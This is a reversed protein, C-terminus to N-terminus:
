VLSLLLCKRYRCFGCNKARVQGVANGLLAPNECVIRAINANEVPGNAQCLGNEEIFVTNPSPNTNGIDNTVCYGGTSGRGSRDPESVSEVNMRANVKEGNVLYSTCRIEVGIKTTPDYIHWLYDNNDNPAFMDETRQFNSDIPAGTWSNQPDNKVCDEATLFYQNDGFTLDIEKVFGREGQGIRVTATDAQYMQIYSIDTPQCPSGREKVSWESAPIGDRTPAWVCAEGLPDVEKACQTQTLKCYPRTQVKPVTRADCVLWLDQTGDFSICFPDGFCTCSECCPSRDSTEFLVSSLSLCAESVAEPDEVIPEDFGQTRNAETIPNVTCDEEMTDAFPCCIDFNFGVDEGSPPVAIEVPAEGCLPCFSAASAFQTMALVLLAAFAQPM